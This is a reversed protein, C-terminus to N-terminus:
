NSTLKKIIRRHRLKEANNKRYRADSVKRCTKCVRQTGSVVKLNKGRLPHGRICTNGYDFKKHCSNCMNKYDRRNRTYKGTVNAWHFMVSKKGCVECHDPRKFHKRIYDHKSGYGAADGKWNYPRKHSTMILNM